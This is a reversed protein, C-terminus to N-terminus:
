SAEKLRKLERTALMYLVKDALNEPTIPRLVIHDINKDLLKEDEDVNDAIIVVMTDPTMVKIQNVLYFDNEVASQKDMLVVDIKDEIQTIISLCDDISKSKSVKFGKLNMVGALLNNADTFDVSLILRPTSYDMISLPVVFYLFRLLDTSM